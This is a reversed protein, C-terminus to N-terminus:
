DGCVFLERYGACLNNYQLPIEPYAALKHARVGNDSCGTVNALETIEGAVKEAYRAAIELATAAQLRRGAHQEYSTISPEIYLRLLGTGDPNREITAKVAMVRQHEDRGLERKWYLMNGSQVRNIPEFQGVALLACAIDVDLPTVSMQCCM